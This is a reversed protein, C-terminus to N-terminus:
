HGKSDENTFVRMVEEVVEMVMQLMSIIRSNGGRSSCVASLM